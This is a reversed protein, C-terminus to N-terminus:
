KTEKVEDLLAQLLGQLLMSVEAQDKRQDEILEGSVRKGDTAM